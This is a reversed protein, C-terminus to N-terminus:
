QYLYYINTIWKTSDKEQGPGKIYEEVVLHQKKGMEKVKSMLADHVAGESAYGGKHVAMLAKSSEVRIPVIGTATVENAVPMVAAVDTSQNDTDWKYYIAAAPGNVSSGAAQGIKSYSEQFFASLEDWKMSKRIGAYIHMPYKTDQIAPATNEAVPEPHSEVYQKMKDLGHEFDKGLMKDMSFISSFISHPFSNDMIFIWTANTMGGSDTAVLYGTAESKFPKIFKLSFQMSDGNLNQNTIEGEGSKKPDGVWHYGSGVEGDNGFYTMQVATDMEYWPSWNPWNKFHTMQAFVASKSGKITTSRQVLITKPAIAALIGVIVIVIVILILLVKLFKKM